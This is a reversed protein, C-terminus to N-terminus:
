TEDSLEWPVEVLVLKKGEARQRAIAEAADPVVPPTGEGKWYFKQMLCICEGPVASDPLTVSGGGPLELISGAPLFVSDSGMITAVRIQSGRRLAPNKELPVVRRDTVTKM